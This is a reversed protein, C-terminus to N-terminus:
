LYIPIPNAGTPTVISEEKNIGKHPLIRCLHTLIAVQTVPFILTVSQSLYVHWGFNTNVRRGLIIFFM